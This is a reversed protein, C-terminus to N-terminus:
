ANGTNRIGGKCLKGLIRQMVTRIGSVDFVSKVSFRLNTSKASMMMKDLQNLFIGNAGSKHSREKRSHEQEAENDSKFM